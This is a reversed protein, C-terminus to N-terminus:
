RLKRRWIYVSTGALVIFVPLLILTFLRVFNAEGGSLLLPAGGRNKPRIAILAKEGGLWNVANLVLNANSQQTVFADSAFDVDGFVVIRGEGKASKAREGPKPKLFKELSISAAAAIPVPGNEKTKPDFFLRGSEVQLKEVTFSGTGTRALIETLIGRDPDGKATVRRVTPFMTAKGRLQKTIEHVGYDAVFPTVENGGVLSLRVSQPDLVISPPASFGYKALFSLLRGQTDPELFILLRGGGEIYKELFGIEAEALDQGPAAIVLLRTGEPVGTARLLLLESVEYNDDRMATGLAALVQRGQGLPLREGHGTLFYAKKQATQITKLIANAISNESLDFIKESRFTEAKKETAPAKAPTGSEAKPAEKADLHHVIVVTGYADVDYKKAATPSADLDVFRFTVQETRRTYQELVEKIAPQTTKQTFALIEIRKKERDIQQLLQLTKSSLSYFGSPTVDWRTWHSVSFLEVIVQIGIVVVIMLFVQLATRTTRLRIGVRIEVRSMWV